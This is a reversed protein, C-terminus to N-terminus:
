QNSANGGQAPASADSQNQAAGSSQNTSSEAAWSFGALLSAIMAFALVIKKM